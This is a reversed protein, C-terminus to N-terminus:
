LIRTFQYETSQNIDDLRREATQTFGARKYLRHADTFCTDSWMTITKAQNSEAWRMAAELLKRGFGAGRYRADLYLRFIETTTKDTFRIGVTGIISGDIPEQGTAANETNEEVLGVYFTGSNHDYYRDFEILDPTETEPIFIFGYEQYVNHIVSIIAMTDAQNAKRITFINM